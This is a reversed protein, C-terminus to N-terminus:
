NKAKDEQIGIAFSIYEAIFELAFKVPLIEGLQDASIVKGELNRSILRATVRYLEDIAANTETADEADGNLARLQPQLALLEQFAGKTPPMVNVLGVDALKMPLLTIRDRTFDLMRM